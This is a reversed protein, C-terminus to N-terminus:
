DILPSVRLVVDPDRTPQGRGSFRLTYSLKGGYSTVKDDLFQKPLEWYLTRSGAESFDRFVLANREARPEARPRFADFPQSSRVRVGAASNAFGIRQQARFLRSSSCERTVGSCFCQICGQPNRPDLFFAHSVCQDCRPGTTYAKCRCQGTRPDPRPDLSGAANCEAQARVPVCTGLYLGGGSREYGPACDECSLGVYGAPCRCDEVAWAREQQTDRPVAIDMSVEGLSTSSHGGNHTARILFSELDALVMLLHERTAPQGDFRTWSTEYMPIEITHVADQGYTKRPDIKHHLEIDNGKLVVMSERSWNRDGGTFKFSFRIVGGYATVRDGCMSQPLRWYKTEPHSDTNTIFGRTAFNLAPNLLPRTETVDVLISDGGPPPGTWAVREQSRYWTASACGQQVGMGFCPICGNPNKPDLYYAGAKCRDCLPGEVYRKCVCSGDPRTSQTGAPNCRSEAQVSVICDPVALVRGKINIAECTYAGSDSTVADRITLTGFGNISTQTCRPEPCM